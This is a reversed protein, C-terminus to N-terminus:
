CYAPLTYLLFPVTGIVNKQDVFYSRRLARIDETATKEIREREREREIKESEIGCDGDIHVVCIDGLLDLLHDSEDALFGFLFGVLDRNGGFFYM